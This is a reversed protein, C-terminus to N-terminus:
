SFDIVERVPGSAAPPLPKGVPPLRRATYNGAAIYAATAKRGRRLRRSEELVEGRTKSALAILGADSSLMERIATAVRSRAAASVPQAFYGRILPRRELEHAVAAGWDGREAAQRAARTLALIREMEVERTNPRVSM